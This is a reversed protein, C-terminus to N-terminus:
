GVLPRPAIVLIAGDGGAGADVDVEVLYDRDVHV